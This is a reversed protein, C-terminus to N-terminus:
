MNEVFISEKNGEVFVIKNGDDIEVSIISYSCSVCNKVDFLVWNLNFEVFLFELIFFLM